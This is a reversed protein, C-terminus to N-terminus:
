TKVLLYGIDFSVIDTFTLFVWFRHEHHLRLAVMKKVETTVWAIEARGSSKLDKHRFDGTKMHCLLKGRQSQKRIQLISNVIGM